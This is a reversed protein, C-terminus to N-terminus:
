FYVCNCYAVKYFYVDCFGYYPYNQYCDDGCSAGGSVCGQNQVIALIPDDVPLLNKDFNEGLIIITIPHDETVNERNTIRALIEYKEYDGNTSATPFGGLHGDPTIYFSNDPLPELLEFSLTTQPNFLRGLLKNEGVRISGEFYPVTLVPIDFDNLITAIRNQSNIYKSDQLNLIDVRGSSSITSMTIRENQQMYIPIEGTSLMRFNLNYALACSQIAASLSTGSGFGYQGGMGAVWIEEGPAWSDLQGTNTSNLTNSIISPNSYNSFDSPGLDIGYSGVTLVDPMAAPTVNEIPQGNNGASAVIFFGQRILERMKQEIYENRPIAWSCNLIASGVKNEKYKELISDLANLIDSQRTSYNKDFIKIIKLNACTLGCSEGSILSAVATGHGSADDFTGNVSFLLDINTNIFEPHSVDIGGDMIYVDINKGRRSLSVTEQDFDPSKLTYNKWWDKKDTTSITILPLNPDTKYIYPDVPIIEGLPALEIQGDNIISEVIETKPPESSCEVLYVKSFNNYVKILTANIATLYENVIVEDTNNIFDIIYKM